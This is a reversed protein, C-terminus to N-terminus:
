YLGCGIIAVASVVLAERQLTQWIPLRFVYFAIDRGFLPDREGFPAGKFFSLWALWDDSSSLAMIFAVGASVWTAIGSLRRGELAIARGDVGTGLVIQPRTFTRQAFRLNLSLFVFVVAFTIAIVLVQANISRLFVGEYGMERFWLWNTYYEVASPVVFLLVLLAVILGPLGLRRM